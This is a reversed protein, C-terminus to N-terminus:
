LLCFSKNRNKESALESKAYSVDKLFHQSQTQWAKHTKYHISSKEWRQDPENTLTVLFVMLSLSLIRQQVSCLAIISSCYNTKPMSGFAPSQSQYLESDFNVLFSVIHNTDGSITRKRHDVTVSHTEVEVSSKCLKRLINLSNLLVASHKENIAAADSKRKSDQFITRM